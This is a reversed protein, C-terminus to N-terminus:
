AAIARGTAHGQPYDDALLLVGSGPEAAAVAQEATDYREFSGVCESVVRYLDNDERCCFAFELKGPKDQCDM